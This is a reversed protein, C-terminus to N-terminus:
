IRYLVKVVLLVSLLNGKRSMSQLFTVETRRLWFFLNLKVPLAIHSRAAGLLGQFDVSIEFDGLTGKNYVLDLFLFMGECILWSTDRFHMCAYTHAPCCFFPIHQSAFLAAWSFLIQLPCTLGQVEAQGIIIYCSKRGKQLLNQCSSSEGM